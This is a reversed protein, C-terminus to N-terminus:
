KHLQVMDNIDLRDKGLKKKLKEAVEILNTPTANKEMGMAWVEDETANPVGIGEFRETKSDKSNNTSPKSSKSSSSNYKRKIIDREREYWAIIEDIDEHVPPSNESHELTSKYSNGNNALSVQYNTLNSIRKGFFYFPNGGCLMYSNLFTASAAARKFNKDNFVRLAQFYSNAYFAITDLDLENFDKETFLKEELEEDKYLCFKIVFSNLKDQAFKEVNNLAVRDRNLSIEQLEKEKADIRDSILKKQSELFLERITKKLNKIENYLAQYKGEEEKSWHGTNDLMELNQAETFLGQRAAQKKFNERKQEFIAYDVDRLHKIYFTEGEETISTSYGNIIDNYVRLCLEYKEGATM